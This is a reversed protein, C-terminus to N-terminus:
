WGGFPLCSPSESPLEDLPSKSQPGGKLGCTPDNPHGVRSGCM